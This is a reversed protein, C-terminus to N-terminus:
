SVIPLVKRLTTHETLLVDCIYKYADNVQQFANAGTILVNGSEFVAITVKKCEGDGDGTGKGFCTKTCKCIGDKSENKTNWFYYLKVGPYSTGQFNCNNNYKDSILLAHLSKRRVVYNVSFNSNIMRIKFDCPTLDDISSVIDHHGKEYIRKLEDTVHSIMIIGDEPCRIGTMHINGNRFIKVNPNYGERMHYVTTVQNDFCKRNDDESDRKKKKEKPKKGRINSVKYETYIFGTCGNVISVESFFRDLNVNTGVSGNCTITSIRYPTVQPQADM